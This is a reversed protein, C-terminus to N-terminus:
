MTRTIHTNLEAVVEPDFTWFGDWRRPEVEVALLAVPGQDTTEDARVDTAAGGDPTFLVFWSDRFDPTYGGHMVAGFGDPPTWDPVGYLHVDVGTDALQEYVTRTGREDNLRSLRQFSARHRGTGAQWAIREIYRSIVILLLKEDNSRPYGRLSFRVDDLGVIVDPLDFTELGKTGTRYRDSNVLLIADRLADLPSTAVVEEDEILLVVDEGTEPLDVEGVDVSQADFTSELM